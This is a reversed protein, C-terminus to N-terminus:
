EYNTDELENIDPNVNEKQSDYDDLDCSHIDDSDLQHLQEPITYLDTNLSLLCTHIMENLRNIHFSTTNNILDNFPISHNKKQIYQNYIRNLYLNILEPLTFNTNTNYIQHKLTYCIMREVTIIIKKKAVNM